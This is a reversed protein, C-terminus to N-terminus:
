NSSNNRDGLYYGVALTALPIISSLLFKVLDAMKEFEVGTIDFMLFVMLFSFFYVAGFLILTYRAIELSARQDFGVKPEEEWDEVDNIDVEELENEVVHQTDGIPNEQDEPENNM